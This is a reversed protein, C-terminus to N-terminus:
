LKRRFARWHQCDYPMDEYGNYEAMLGTPTHQLGALHGVEHVVGMCYWNPAARDIQDQHPILIRCGARDSGMSAVFGNKDLPLLADANEVAVPHCPVQVGREGWFHVAILVALVFKVPALRISRSHHLL